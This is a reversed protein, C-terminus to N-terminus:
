GGGERRSIPIPTECGDACVYEILVSDCPRDIHRTARLYIRDDIIVILEPINPTRKWRQHKVATPQCSEVKAREANFFKIKGVLVKLWARATILHTVGQM